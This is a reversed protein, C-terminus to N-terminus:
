VTLHTRAPLLCTVMSTLKITAMEGSKTWASTRAMVIAYSHQLGDRTIHAPGYHPALLTGLAPFPSHSWLPKHFQHMTDARFGTFFFMQTSVPGRNGWTSPPRSALVWTKDVGPCLSFGLWSMGAARTMGSQSIFSPLYPVSWVGPEVTNCQLFLPPHPQFFGEYCVDWQSHNKLINILIYYNYLPCMTVCM